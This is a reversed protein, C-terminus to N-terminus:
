TPLLKTPFPYWNSQCTREAQAFYLSMLVYRFAMSEVFRGHWTCFAVIKFDEMIIVGLVYVWSYFM